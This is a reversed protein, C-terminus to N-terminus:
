LSLFALYDIHPLKLHQIDYSALNFREKAVTQVIHEFASAQVRVFPSADERVIIVLGFPNTMLFVGYRDNIIDM